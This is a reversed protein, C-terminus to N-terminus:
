AIRRIIIWLGTEDQIIEYSSVGAQELEKRYDEVKNKGIRQRRKENWEPDIELMKAEIEKLLEVNGFGGGIMAVSNVALVRYIEAFAKVRDNWFFMSGRSVALQISEDDLPISHVDGKLTKVRSQLGSERIYGNALELMDDSEDFLIMNLDTIRALALGLYGGGCGIDLCCGRNIGTRNIIQEALVPYVPAFIERAMRDFEVANIEM